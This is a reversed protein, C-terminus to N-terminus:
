NTAEEEMPQGDDIPDVYQELFANLIEDVNDNVIVIEKEKENQLNCSQQTILYEAQSDDPQMPTCEHANAESSGQSQFLVGDDNIEYVIPNGIESIPVQDECVAGKNLDKLAFLDPKSASIVIINVVKKEAYLDLMEEVNDDSMILDMGAHGAGVVKPYYM